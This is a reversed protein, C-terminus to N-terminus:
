KWIKWPDVGFANNSCRENRPTVIRRDMMKPQLFYSDFTAIPGTNGCNKDNSILPSLHKKLCAATSEMEDVSVPKICYGAVGMSLARKEDERNLSGTMVVVPISRLKPTAKMYTLVDFGNIKPLNLDLIVFDPIPGKSLGEESGLIDLARRGNQAITAHLPLEMEGLLETMLMADGPNDEVILVELQKREM